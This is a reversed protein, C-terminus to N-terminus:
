VALMQQRVQWSDNLKAVARRFREYFARVYDPLTQIYSHYFIYVVAHM